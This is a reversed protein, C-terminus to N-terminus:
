DVNKREQQWQQHGVHAVYVSIKFISGYRCTEFLLNEGFRKAIWGPDVQVVIAQQVHNTRLMRKQHVNIEILTVTAKGIDGRLRTKIRLTEPIMM